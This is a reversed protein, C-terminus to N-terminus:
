RRKFRGKEAGDNYLKQRDKLRGRKEGITETNFRNERDLKRWREMRDQDLSGALIAARVACGPETEHACNNFKCLAALETIDAFVEDVGEEASVLRLERMGPTDILWGGALTQRLNRNTTTHRGKADDKRIDRTADIIGTLRNQITTKGVGSSGVLALTQGDSCWPNLRAVEDMDKANLALATLSASLSRAQALYDAAKDSQDAKTVIVLPQCGSAGCMALYRELRAINFDENCSTVIGLTDVNAAILQPKSEEGAARRTIETLRALPESAATGTAIVWDGVAYRGAEVTPSLSVPGDETLGDLRSRHVASIRVPRGTALLLALGDASTQTAFHPSWGLDELSAPTM